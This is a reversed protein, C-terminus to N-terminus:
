SQGGGERARTTAARAAAYRQASRDLMAIQDPDSVPRYNTEGTAVAWWRGALQVPGPVGEPLLPLAEGHQVRRAMDKSPIVQTNIM